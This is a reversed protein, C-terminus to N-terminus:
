NSYFYTEKIVDPDDCQGWGITSYRHVLKLNDNDIVYKPAWAVGTYEILVDGKETLMFYDCRHQDAFFGYLTDVLIFDGVDLAETLSRGVSLTTFESAEIGVSAFSVYSIFAAGLPLSITVSSKKYAFVTSSLLILCFLLGKSFTSLM